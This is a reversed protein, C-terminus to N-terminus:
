LICTDSFPSLRFHVENVLWTACAIYPASNVVGVLWSDRKYNPQGKTAGIGFELPFSLDKMLTLLGFITSIFDFYVYQCRKVGNSGMRQSNILTLLLLM